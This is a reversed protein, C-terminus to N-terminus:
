QPTTTGFPKNRELVDIKGYTEGTGGAQPPPKIYAGQKWAREPGGTFFWVFWLFVIISIFWFLDRGADDVITPKKDEAM